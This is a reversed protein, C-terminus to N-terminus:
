TGVGRAAVTLNAPATLNGPRVTLRWAGIPPGPVAGLQPTGGPPTLLLTANGAAEGRAVALLSALAFPQEFTLNRTAGPEVTLNWHALTTSRGRGPFADDACGALLDPLAGEGARATFKGASLRGDWPDAEVRLRWDGPAPARVLCPGPPEGALAALRAGGPAEFTVEVVDEDGIRFGAFLYDARDVAFALTANDGPGLAGLEWAGLVRTTAPFQATCGAMACLAALLALARV